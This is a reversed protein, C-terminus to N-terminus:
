PGDATLRFSKSEVGGVTMTKGRASHPGEGAVQGDLLRELQARIEHASLGQM